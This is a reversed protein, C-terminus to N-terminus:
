VFNKRFERIIQKENEVINKADFLIKYQEYARESRKAAEEPNNIAELIKECIQENSPYDAFYASYGETLLEHHWEIDFCVIPKKLICAELMAYGGLPILAVDSFKVYSMLVNVTKFGPFYIRDKAKSAAAMNKLQTELPGDGIIILGLSENAELAQIAGEIAYPLKKEISLRSWIIINRETKPYDIENKSFQLAEKADDLHAFHPIIRTNRVKSPHAGNHIAFAACYKNFALVLSSARFFFALIAKNLNRLIFNKLSDSALKDESFSALDYSGMVQVVLPIKYFISLLASLVMNNGPANTYIVEPNIKKVLNHMFCFWILTQYLVYTRKFFKHKEGFSYVIGVINDTLKYCERLSEDEYFVYCKNFNPLILQRQFSIDWLNKFLPDKFGQYKIFKGSALFLIKGNQSKDLKNRVFFARIFCIPLVLLSLMVFLIVDILFM